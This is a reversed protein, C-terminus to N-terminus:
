YLSQADVCAQLFAGLYGEPRVTALTEKMVGKLSAAEVSGYVTEVDVEVNALSGPWGSVTEGTLNFTVEVKSRMAPFVLCTRVQLLPSLSTSSLTYSLPYRLNVLRLESRLRQISSWLQGIRQILLPLTNCEKKFSEMSNLFVEFLGEMSIGGRGRPGKKEGHGIYPLTIGSSSAKKGEGVDILTINISSLDPHFDKASFCLNIENDYTLELSSPSLHVIRWQHLHQLSDYEDRLRIVDSRTFRDCMNRATTIAMLLESKKDRLEDLKTTLTGLKIQGDSLETTFGAIQINQEAIAARFDALEEQDCEAVAKVMEREKGLEERLAAARAQLDPLLTETQTCLESLRTDDEKMGLLMEEVDPKIKSMLAIKWDYWGEKAKLHTNTKFNKFTSEFMAKEHDPAALYEKIVPPNHLSYLEETAQLDLAAARIDERMKNNGWTYMNLFASHIQAEVYEHLGFDRDATSQGLVGRAVSSRRNMGPLGEMFLVGTMELFAGLAITPPEEWEEEAETIEESPPVNIGMARRIAPSRGPTWSTKPPTARAPSGLAPVQEFTTMNTRETVPSSSPKDVPEFPNMKVTSTVSFVEDSKMEFDSMNANSNPIPDVNINVNSNSDQLPRKKGVSSTTSGFSLRKAVDAAADMGGKRPTSKFPSPSPAFVNRKETPRSKQASAVTSRAFSPTGGQPRTIPAHRPSTPPLYTTNLQIGGEASTFEMDSTHNNSIQDRTFAFSMTPERISHRTDENSGGSSMSDDGNIIGGLAITEEMEMEMSIDGHGPLLRDHDHVHTSYGLSTRGPTAGGPPARPIAGGIAITFDMTQEEDDGKSTSSVDVESTSIVSTDRDMAAMSERRLIGGYQIQTVDMDMEDEEDDQEDQTDFNNPYINSIRNPPIAVHLAEDTSDSESDTEIDMSEEGGDNDVLTTSCPFYSPQYISTISVTSSTRVHQTDVCRVHANPAFSVRRSLVRTDSENNSSFAYTHAYQVTFDTTADEANLANAPNSKLISKRPQMSRRAQRRPSLKQSSSSIVEAGMSMVARKKAKFTQTQPMNLNRESLSLSMRARPSRPNASM